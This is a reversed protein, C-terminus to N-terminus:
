PSGTNIGRRSCFVRGPTDTSYTELEAVVMFYDEVSGDEYEFSEVFGYLSTVEALNDDEFTVVVGFDLEDPATPDLQLSQPDVNDTSAELEPPATDSQLFEEYARNFTGAVDRQDQLGLIRYEHEGARRHRNRLLQPSHRRPQLPRCFRDIAGM